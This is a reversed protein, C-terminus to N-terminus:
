NQAPGSTDMQPLYKRWQGSIQVWDGNPMKEILVRQAVDMSLRPVIRVDLAGLQVTAHRLCGSHAIFLRLVNRVDADPISDLSTAVRTATRAGAQMLSEAGLVPLRFEPIRRWGQPLPDLRPDEALLAAIQDFRLNSCSGLSREALETRTVVRFQTGTRAELEEALITATQWARLLQSTEIVPDLELALEENSELIPIACARAQARGEDSLPLPLHASATDDPRDFHGHRVFGAVRRGRPERRTIESM